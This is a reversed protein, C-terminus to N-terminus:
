SSPSPPLDIPFGHLKEVGYSIELYSKIRLDGKGGGNVKVVYLSELNTSAALRRVRKRVDTLFSSKRSCFFPPFFFLFEHLPGFNPVNM